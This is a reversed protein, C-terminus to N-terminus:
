LITNYGDIHSQGITMAQESYRNLTSNPQLTHINQTAHMNLM